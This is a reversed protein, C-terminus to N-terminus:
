LQVDVLILEAAASPAAEISILPEDWIEAADGTTMRERNVTADGEIVYLYVGRGDGLPHEVAAGPSLHSVFM